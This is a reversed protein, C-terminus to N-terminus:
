ARPDIMQVAADHGAVLVDMFRTGSALGRGGFSAITAPAAPVMPRAMAYWLAYDSLEYHM